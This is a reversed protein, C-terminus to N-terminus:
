IGLAAKVLTTRALAAVHANAEVVVNARLLVEGLRNCHDCQLEWDITVLNSVVLFQDGEERYGRDATGGTTQQDDDQIGGPIQACAARVRVRVRVRFTPYCM